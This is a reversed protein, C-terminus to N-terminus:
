RESERTLSAGIIEVEVSPGVPKWIRPDTCVYVVRTPLGLAAALHSVGTDNGIFRATERRMRNALSQLDLNEVIEVPLGDFAQQAHRRVLGDAEGFSAVIAGRSQRHWAEMEARFWSLPANKQPSGSGVHVWLGKGLPGGGLYARESWGAKPSMGLDQFMQETIHPPREPRSKLFVTAFAGCARGCHAIRGDPDPLFSILRANKLLRFWLPEPVSFLSASSSHDMDQFQVAALHPRILRFYDRRTVLMIEDGAENLDDILPLTLLFDGLGGSRLVVTRM